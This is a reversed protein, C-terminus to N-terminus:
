TQKIEDVMRKAELLGLRGSTGQRLAKVARVDEGRALHERVAPPIAELPGEFGLGASLIRVLLELEGRDNM